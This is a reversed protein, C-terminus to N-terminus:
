TTSHSQRRRARRVQPQWHASSGPSSASTNSVAGAKPSIPAATLTLGLGDLRQLSGANAVFDGRYPGRRRSDVRAVHLGTLEEFEVIPEYGRLPVAGGIVSKMAGVQQVREGAPEIPAGNMQSVAECSYLLLAVADHESKAL